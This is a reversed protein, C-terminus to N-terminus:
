RPKKKNLPSGLIARLAECKERVEREHFDLKFPASSFTVHATGRETETLDLVFILAARLTEFPHSGRGRQFGGGPAQDPWWLVNARQDLDVGELM